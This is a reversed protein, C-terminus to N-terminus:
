MKNTLEKKVFEFIFKVETNGYDYLSNIFWSINVESKEIAAYIENYKYNEHLKDIEENITKYYEKTDIYKDLLNICQKKTRRAVQDCGIILKAM